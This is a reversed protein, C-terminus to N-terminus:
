KLTSARARLAPPRGTATWKTVVEDKLVSNIQDNTLLKVINIVSDDTPVVWNVRKQLGIINGMNEFKRNLIAVVKSVANPFSHSFKMMPKRRLGFALGITNDDYNEFLSRLFANGTRSSFTFAQLLFWLRHESQFCTLSHCHNYHKNVFQRDDAVQNASRITWASSTMSTQEHLVKSESIRTESYNVRSRNQPVTTYYNTAFLDYNNHSISAVRGSYSEQYLMAYTTRSNLDKKTASYVSRCAKGILHFGKHKKSIPGSGLYLPYDFARKHLGIGTSGQTDSVLTITEKSNYGRDSSFSKDTMLLLSSTTPNGQIPKGVNKWTDLLTERSRSHHTTLLFQTLQSHLM